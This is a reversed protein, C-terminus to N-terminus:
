TKLLKVLQGLFKDLLFLDRTSSIFRFGDAQVREPTLNGSDDDLLKGMGEALEEALGEALRPLDDILPSLVDVASPQLAITLVKLTEQAAPYNRQKVIEVLSPQHLLADVEELMWPKASLMERATDSWLAQCLRNAAQVPLRQLLNWGIRFLGVLGPETSLM